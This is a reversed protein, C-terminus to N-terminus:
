LYRWSQADLVKRIEETDDSPPVVKYAMHLEDDMTKFIYWSLSDISKEVTINNGIELKLDYRKLREQYMRYFPHMKMYAFIALRGNETSMEEELIKKGYSM